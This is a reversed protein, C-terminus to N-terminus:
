HGLIATGLLTLTAGFFSHLLDIPRFCRGATRSQHLEDLVAVICCIAWTAHGRAFSWDLNGQSLALYLLLFLGGFEVYHFAARFHGHYADLFKWLAPKSKVTDIWQQSQARGFRRTGCYAIFVLWFFLAVWYIM